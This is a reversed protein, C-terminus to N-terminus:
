QIRKSRVGTERVDSGGKRRQFDHGEIEEGTSLTKVEQNM